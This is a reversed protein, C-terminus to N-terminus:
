QGWGLKNKSCFTPVAAGHGAVPAYSAGAVFNRGLCQNRVSNAANYRLDGDCVLVSYILWSLRNCGIPM